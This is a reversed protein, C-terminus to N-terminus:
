WQSGWSGSVCFAAHSQVLELLSCPQFLPRVVEEFFEHIRRLPGRPWRTIVAFVLLMPLTALVGLGADRLDWRFTALAPQDLLWGLGWALLALGGEFGAGLLVVALRSRSKWEM